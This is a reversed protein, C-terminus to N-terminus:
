DILSFKDGDDTLGTGSFTCQHINDADQVALGLSSVKQLSFIYIFHIIGHSTRDPVFSDTKNKLIKVKKGM